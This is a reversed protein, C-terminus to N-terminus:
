ALLQKLSTLGQTKKLQIELPKARQALSQLYRTEDYPRGDKWCRFVVRLWKFALARVAAHHAKGHSRQQDYFARAWESKRMSLRAWEHFTQRLFKPCAWRWHVWKQKGSSATVPAIGSYSQIESATAFRERQTGFAAILRPVMVPGAGPLSAFVNRDPHERTLQGIRRDLQAISERLLQLQRALREVTLVSTEIVAADHTAAVATALAQQLQAVRAESLRHQRLWKAVRNPPAQQLQELVPWELLLESVVLQDVQCWELLQPFYLKLQATLRNLYRTKDDVAERRAEVLFQLTRTAVTDPEFKRLREPHKVLLELILAADGPDSKAGSPYFSKRYHDLTSPHVPYIVVHAYKSLAFLLAGRSQELAIAISQGPFRAGLTTVFQELAEPTHEVEGQEIRTAAGVAPAAVQMAWRHREDAWDIGLWAAITPAVIDDQM